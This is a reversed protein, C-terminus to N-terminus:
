RSKYDGFWQQYKDLPMPKAFHYGQVTDCNLEILAQMTEEDEVGEATVTLNMRHALVLVALVIAENNSNHTFDSIFSKDIKLEDVPLNKVYSLSSHGTGFDDISLKINMADLENLVRVALEPDTMITSETLELILNSPSIPWKKLASSIIQILREDRLNLASLNVAVSLHRNEKQLTICDELAKNLVWATMPQILGTQEALPIFDDPQIMGLEPHRWRVM